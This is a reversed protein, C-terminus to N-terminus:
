PLPQDSTKSQPALIGLIASDPPNIDAFRLSLYAKLNSATPETQVERAFKLAEALKRDARLKDFFEIMMKRSHNSQAFFLASVAEVITGSVLPLFVSLDNTNRSPQFGAVGASIILLFGIIAFSISVWFSVTAQNLGQKHYVEILDPKEKPSKPTHLEFNISENTGIIESVATTLAESSGTKDENSALMEDHIIKELLKRRKFQKGGNIWGLIAAVSAVALTGATAVIQLLSSATFEM